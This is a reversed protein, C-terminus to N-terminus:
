PNRILRSYKRFGYIQFTQTKGYKQQVIFWKVMNQFNYPNRSWGFYKLFVYTQFTQKKTYKERIIPIWKEWIKSIKHIEAEGSINLGYIQFTQTKGNKGMNQSSRPNRSWPFIEFHKHKGMSERVLPIWKELTKSIKHIKAERFINLFCMIKYHKHKRM